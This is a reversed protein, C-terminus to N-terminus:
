KAINQVIPCASSAGCIVGSAVRARDAEPLTIWRRRTLDNFESRGARPLPMRARERSAQVTKWAAGAADDAPEAGLSDDATPADRSFSSRSTGNQPL